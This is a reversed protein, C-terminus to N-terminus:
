DSVIQILPCFKGKISKAGQVFVSNRVRQKMSERRQEIVPRRGVWEASFVLAFVVGVLLAMSLLVAVTGGIFHLLATLNFYLILWLVGKGIWFLMNGITVTICLAFLPAFLFARWFFACLTTQPPIKEIEMWYAWRVLRSTRRLTM